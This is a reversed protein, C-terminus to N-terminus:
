PRWEVKGTLAFRELTDAAVAPTIDSYACSTFVFLTIDSYACSTFVFLQDNTEKSLGLLEGASERIRAFDRSLWATKDYVACAYGAICAPTDCEFSKGGWENMDFRVGPLGERIIRALELCRKQEVTLDKM